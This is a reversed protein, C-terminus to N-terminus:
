EIIELKYKRGEKVGAVSLITRMAKAIRGAKGIIKGLDQKDVRVEIITTKEGDVQTVQVQEPYDVIQKVIYEILDKM